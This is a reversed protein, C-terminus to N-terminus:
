TVGSPPTVRYGRVKPADAVWEFAEIVRDGAGAGVGPGEAAGVGFGKTAGVVELGLWAGVDDGLQDGRWRPEM